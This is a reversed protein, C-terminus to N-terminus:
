RGVDPCEGISMIRKKFERENELYQIKIKSLLFENQWLKTYIKTQQETDNNLTNANPLRSKHKVTFDLLIWQRKLNNPKAELNFAPNEM